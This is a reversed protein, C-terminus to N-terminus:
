HGGPKVRYRALEARLWDGSRVVAQGPCRVQYAKGSFSSESAAREIFLEATDTLDRDLLYQYKRRIHKVADKTTYWSGNRNFECPSQEVFALLHEIERQAM